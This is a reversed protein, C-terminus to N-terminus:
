MLERRISHYIPLDDSEHIEEMIKLYLSKNNGKNYVKLVYLVDETSPLNELHIFSEDSLFITTSAGEFVVIKDITLNSYNLNRVVEFNRLKLKKLESRNVFYGWYIRVILVKNNEFYILISDSNGMRSANWEIKQIKLKQINNISIYESELHKWRQKTHRGNLFRNIVLIIAALLVLGLYFLVSYDVTVLDM